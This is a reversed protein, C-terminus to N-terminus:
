VEVIMSKESVGFLNGGFHHLGAAGESEIKWADDFLDEEAWAKVVRGIFLSHDGAQITQELKCALHGICEKILPPMTETSPEPTLGAKEFKDTDWGSTKGCIMVQKALGVPPVNIVFEGSQVILDHSHKKPGISACVLPPNLSVPSTWAVTMINPSGSPIQSTILVVPGHNIIRHAKSLSIERKM